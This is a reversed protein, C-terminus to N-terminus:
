QNLFKQITTYILSQILDLNKYAEESENETLLLRLTKLSDHILLLNAYLHRDSKLTPLEKDLATRRIWESVNTGGRLAKQNLREKEQLTVRVIVIETKKTSSKDKEIM